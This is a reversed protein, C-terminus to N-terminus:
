MLHTHTMDLMVRKTLDNETKTPDPSPIAPVISRKQSPIKKIQLLDDLNSFVLTEFLFCNCTSLLHMDPWLTSSFGCAHVIDREIGITTMEIGKADSNQPLPWIGM